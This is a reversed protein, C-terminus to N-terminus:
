KSVMEKFLLQFEEYTFQAMTVEPRNLSNKKMPRVLKAIEPEKGLVSLVIKSM